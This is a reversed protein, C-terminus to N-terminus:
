RVGEPEGRDSVGILIEGGRTNAFTSVTELAEKDFGEKFELTDSEGSQILKLLDKRNM